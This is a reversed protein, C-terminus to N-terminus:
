PFSKFRWYLLTWLAAFGDKWGIKKGEKKTRPYYSIPTEGITYGRKLIKATIEPEIDFRNAKLNIEKAIKTPILKYCTEMDTLNVRYLTNTVKNLFINGLYYSFYSYKNKENQM